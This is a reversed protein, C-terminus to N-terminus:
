VCSGADAQAPDGRRLRGPGQRVRAPSNALNAITSLKRLSPISNCRMRAIPSRKRGTGRPTGHSAGIVLALPSRRISASQRPATPLRATTNGREQEVRMARTSYALAGRPNLQIAQTCDEIAKDYEGKKEWAVGRNNFAADLAPELSMAKTFHRIAENSRAAISTNLAATPCIRARSDTPPRLPDTPPRLHLCLRICCGVRASVVPPSHFCIGCSLHDGNGNIPAEITETFVTPTIPWM